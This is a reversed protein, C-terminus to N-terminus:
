AAGFAVHLAIMAPGGLFARYLQAGPALIMQGGVIGWAAIAAARFVALSARRRSASQPGPAARGSRPGEGAESATTAAGESDLRSRTAGGGFPEIRVQLLMVFCAAPCHRFDGRNRHGGARTCAAGM